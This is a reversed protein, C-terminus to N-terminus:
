RVSVLGLNRTLLEAITLGNHKQSSLSLHEISHDADPLVSLFYRGGSNEFLAKAKAQSTFEINTVGKTGFGGAIPVNIDL